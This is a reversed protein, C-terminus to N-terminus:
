EKDEGREAGGGVRKSSSRNSGESNGDEVEKHAAVALACNYDDGKTFRIIIEDPVDMKKTVYVGGLIPALGKGFVFRFYNTGESGHKDFSAQLVTDSM